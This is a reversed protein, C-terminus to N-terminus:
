EGKDFKEFLDESSKQYLLGRDELEQKLKKM